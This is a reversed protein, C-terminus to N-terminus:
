FECESDKYIHDTKEYDMYSIYQDCIDDISGPFSKTLSYQKLWKRFPICNESYYFACGSCPTEFTYAEQKWNSPVDDYAIGWDLPNACECKYWVQDCCLNYSQTFEQKEKLNYNIEPKGLFDGFWSRWYDEDYEALCRSVNTCFADGFYIPENCSECEIEIDELENLVDENNFLDVDESTTSKNYLDEWIVYCYSCATQVSQFETM